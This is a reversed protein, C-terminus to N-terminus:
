SGTIVIHGVRKRRALKREEVRVGREAIVSWRIRVVFHVRRPLRSIHSHFHTTLRQALFNIIRCRSLVHYQAGSSVIRQM